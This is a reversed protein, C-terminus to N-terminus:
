ADEWRLTDASPRVGPGVEVTQQDEAWMISLSGNERAALYDADIEGSLNEYTYGCPFVVLGVDGNALVIWKETSRGDDTTPAAMVMNAAVRSAPFTTAIVPRRVTSM